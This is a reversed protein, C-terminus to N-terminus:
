LEQRLWNGAQNVAQLSPEVAHSWGFFGHCVGAYRVASARCGADALADAYAEGEDRLPDFEATIVLAPPLNSLDAAFCPSLRWDQPSHEGQYLRYFWAMEAGSLFPGDANELYSPSAMTADVAPYILLQAKLPHTSSRNDIAVAAALNGGASDGAVALRQSDIGFRDGDALVANTVAASDDFAAPFQHEPALRYDVSILTAGSTDALLRCQQDHTDVSGLVWGGGHFFIVGAGTADTPRYIRVAVDSIETDSVEVMTPGSPRAASGAAHGARADAVSQDSVRGAGRAELIPKIDPHIPM